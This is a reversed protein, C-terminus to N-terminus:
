RKHCHYVLFPLQWCTVRLLAVSPTDPFGKGTAEPCDSAVPIFL